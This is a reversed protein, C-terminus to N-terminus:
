SLQLQLVQYCYGQGPEAANSLHDKGESYQSFHYSYPQLLLPILFLLPRSVHYLLFNRQLLTESVVFEWWYKSQFLHDPLLLILHRNTLVSSTLYWKVRDSSLNKLDSHDQMNAHSFFVLELQRFPKSDNIHSGSRNRM